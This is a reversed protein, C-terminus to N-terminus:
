KDAEYEEKLYILYKREIELNEEKVRQKEAKAKGAKDKNGVVRQVERDALYGKYKNKIEFASQEKEKQSQVQYELLRQRSNEYEIKKAKTKM